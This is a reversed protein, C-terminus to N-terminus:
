WTRLASRIVTRLLEDAGLFMGEQIEQADPCPAQVCVARADAIFSSFVFDRMQVAGGVNFPISALGDMERIVIHAACLAECINYSGGKWRRVLREAVPAAAAPKGLKQAEERIIDLLHDGRRVPQSIMLGWFQGTHKPDLARGTAVAEYLKGIDAATLANRKGGNYGCGVFDQDWRTQSMGLAGALSNLAPLGYRRVVARTTRNDSAQMMRALGFQLPELERNAPTEDAAVPCLNPSSPNGNANPSSPYRYSTLSSFLGDRGAQVERMAHLHGLVKIASAPDHAYKENSDLLVPGGVAKLYFGATGGVTGFMADDYIAQLRAEEGSREDASVVPALAVALALAVGFSALKKYM